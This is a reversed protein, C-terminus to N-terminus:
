NAGVVLGTMCGVLIPGPDGILKNWVNEEGSILGGGYQLMPVEPLDVRTPRRQMTDMAKILWLEQIVM